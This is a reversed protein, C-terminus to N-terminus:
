ICMGQEGVALSYSTRRWIAADNDWQNLLPISTYAWSLTDSNLLITENFDAYAIAPNGVNNAAHDVSNRGVVYIRRMGANPSAGIALSAWLPVNDNTYPPEISIPSDFVKQPFSLVGLDHPPREWCIMLELPNDADANHHWAFFPIETVPDLVLAPYGAVSPTNYTVHNVSQGTAPDFVTYFCQRDTGPSTKAHYTFVYKGDSERRVASVNNYSRIMYDYYSEMVQTPNVTFSYEATEQCFGLVALVLAIATLISTKM